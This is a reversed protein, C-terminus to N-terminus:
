TRDNARAPQRYTALIEDLERVPKTRRWPALVTRLGDIRQFFRTNANVATVGAVQGIITCAEPVEEEQLLVEARDLSYMARNHLDTSDVLALSKNIATMADDPTGFRLAFRTETSWSLAEDYFHWWSSAPPATHVTTLIAHERDLTVRSKDRQNDALYAEVAVDAAYARAKPSGTQEAWVAAAAAHDIGVRPKGQWTALQSMTCLIYSVLEVNEADHAADRAEDYYHQASRYDGLNFWLWGILSTLDAYATKARQQFGTPAVRALRHALHRHGMASQMTLAPGLVNGQRRLNLVMEECYRLAPEDFNSPDQIFHAVRNIEDTDIIDFLPAAAAATCAASLKAIMDRRAIGRPNWQQTWMVIVQVLEDFDVEQIQQVCAAVVGPLAVPLFPSRDNVGRRNLLSAFLIEAQNAQVGSPVTPKGLPPGPLTQHAEDLHRHDGLDVLLDSVSCEYLEALRTLVLLSPAHGTSAPWLEWYSVNKHTKLEDLWRRNWEEAARQQSWGHALRFAVRTNVRYRLRIAEAIEVWTAGQARLALALQERERKQSDPVV